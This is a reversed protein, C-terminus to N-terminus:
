APGGDMTASNLHEIRRLDLYVLSGSAPLGSISAVLRMYGGIQAAHEPIPQGTKYDVVRWSALAGDEYEPVLLDPRFSAGGADLLPQEAAGDGIWRPTDPLSFYWHLNAAIVPVAEDPVPMPFLRRCVAVSEEILGRLTDGQESAAAGGVEPLGRMYDSLYELCAHTFTGRRRASFFLAEPDNRFIKLRPLWGMPKWDPDPRDHGSIPLPPRDPAATETAPTGGADPLADPLAEAGAQSEPAKGLTLSGDPHRDWPASLKDLLGPLARPLGPTRSLVPTEALLAYLEDEARTWAVYLLNLAERAAGARATFYQGGVAPGQPLFLRLDGAQAPVPTGPDGARANSFDHGPVIVVPFQLGKSKHVTMIRVADVTDPMPAKETEGHLRWHELFAAMSTCGQQEAQHLIELFRQMFPRDDPLREWVKWARLMERVADYPSILGAQEYFPALWTNWIEPFAERFALALSTGRPRRVIWDELEERGLSLPLVLRSGSVLTWFALDDRPADLWELLALCQGVLPHEALLLSNETVVAIGRALLYSALANAQPNTRVLVGIDGLPRRAAVTRVIETVRRATAEKLEASSAAKLPELRVFGGPKGSELQAADLFAESTQKAAQELYASPMSAPLMEGLVAKATAEQGLLSFVSNNARVVAAQSRHNTPLTDTRAASSVAALEPDHLVDEFLGPDGGRWSYIAQKVDGVWTLSGGRALAELVLPHLASWQERSTDQFEDVLIHHLGTGMRCFAESVGYGNTLAHRALGPILNAPLSSQNQLYAALARSVRWALHVYPLSHLASCLLNGEEHMEGIAQRLRAYAAEAKDSAAGKGAAKLWDDLCDKRLMAKDDPLPGSVCELCLDLAKAANASLPLQETEVHGRLAQAAQRLKATVRQLRATVDELSSPPGDSASMLLVLPLVRERLRDGMLFGKDATHLLITHCARVLEAHLDPDRRSQELLEDLLPALAEEDAFVPEFNPPLGLELASLRVVMHLLSDITRVNLSGFRRLITELWSAALEPTWGDPPSPDQNLAITKLTRVIREKMELAARNTFTIALIEPWTHRRPASPRPACSASPADESADAQRLLDLYRRTLTYTKGSGASARIRLLQSASHQPM